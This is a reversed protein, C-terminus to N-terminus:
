EDDDGEKEDDYFYDDEIDTEITRIRIVPTVTGDEENVNFSLSTVEVYPIYRELKDSLEVSYLNELIPLPEDMVDPNIGFNRNAPYKGARTSCLFRVREMIEDAMSVTDDIYIKVDTVMM